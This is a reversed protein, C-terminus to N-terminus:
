TSRESTESESGIPLVLRVTTGLGSEGPGVSLQGHHLEVITRSIALGMGMGQPKTTFFPEYLRAAVEAAFGIGTDDVLVEATGEEGRSTRVRIERTESGAERIADIANQVLNV